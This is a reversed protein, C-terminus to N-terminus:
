RGWQMYQFVLRQNRCNKALKKTFIEKIYYYPYINTKFHSSFKLVNLIYVMSVLYQASKVDENNQKAEKNKMTKSQLRIIRENM